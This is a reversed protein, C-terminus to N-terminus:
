IRAAETIQLLNTQLDNELVCADLKYRLRSAVNLLKRHLDDLLVKEDFSSM